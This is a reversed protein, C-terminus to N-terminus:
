FDFQDINNKRFIFPEGLYVNGDGVRISKMRGFDMETTTANLKGDHLARAAYVTLYGLDVTNWLIVSDIYDEHVYDRCLSPVSLGTLKIDGRDAQKLGEAAGPVAPAAIAMIGKLRPYKNVVNRTETLAKDREGESYRIENLKMGPHKDAMREKIYKIWENQNADTTGASIIVYEGEEGCLAAMEDALTYGIGQSTAQNVFFERAAENSDADWTLVDIGRQMAKKLVGDIADRNLVSACIVDVKKTIWAEVIENQKEPDGKTPGDWLLEVGLEAAAADAGEKCSVFYPDTKTKPLMAVTIPSGDGSAPGPSANGNGPALAVTASMSKIADVVQRNSLAIIGAAALIAVCLIALHSNKMELEEEDTAQPKEPSKARSARDILIAGILIAGVLMNAIDTTQGSLRLGNQLVVIVLMGLFTGHLTGHGGTIATGGLVTMAIAMLEYGMGADSKAQGNKSIFILAAIGAMLGSLIYVRQLVRKTDIGAYRAGAEGFGIAAVHRGFRMRHMFFWLVVFAAVFIPLQTPVGGALYGQGLRLFAPDFGTYTTYGKTVADATGRFLSMTGLTVILPPLRLRTVLYGNLWGCAVGVGLGAVAAVWINLGLNSWLAGTAVAVVAMIGGVSLDIGGTKIVFTMGFAILGYSVALRTIEFFNGATSFNDGCISFVFVEVLLICLLVWENQPM